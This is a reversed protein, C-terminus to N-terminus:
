RNKLIILMTIHQHHIPTPLLIPIILPNILIHVIILIILLHTILITNPPTIPPTILLTSLLTIIHLLIIIITIIITNILHIIKQVIFRKPIIMTTIFHLILFTITSTTTLIIDISRETEERRSLRLRKIFCM